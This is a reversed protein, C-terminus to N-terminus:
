EFEKLVQILRYALALRGQRSKKGSVSENPDIQTLITTEIDVLVKWPIDAMNMLMLWADRESYPNYPCM